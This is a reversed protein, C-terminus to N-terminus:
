IHMSTHMQRSISLQGSISLLQTTSPKSLSRGSISVLFKEDMGIKNLQILTQEGSHPKHLTHQRIKNTVPGQSQRTTTTSYEQQLSQRELM